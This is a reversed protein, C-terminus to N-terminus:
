WFRVLTLIPGVSRPLISLDAIRLQTTGHVNLRADVCGGKEKPSMRVTGLSHPTADIFQHVFAEVAKNDELTSVLDNLEKPLSGDLRVCAAASDQSFKLHLLEFEGRYSPMRRAIERTTNYIWNHVEVDAQVEIVGSRFDPPTYSDTSTIHVHRRSMPHCCGDSWAIASSSRRLDRYREFRFISHLEHRAFFPIYSMGHDQYEAGVGPLDVVIDIGLKALRTADGVGSRQLILPTPIAGSSVVVLKRSAIKRPTQDANPDQKKNAIVEVGAAKTGEFLVRTVLTKKMVRLSKNESRTHIFQHAADQSGTSTNQWASTTTAHFYFRPLTINQTRVGSGPGKQFDMLDDTTPIGRIACVDLYEQAVQAFYGAYSIHFPQVYGHHKLGPAIHYTENKQHLPILKQSSWGTTNWDDFDRSSLYRANLSILGMSINFRVSTMVFPMGGISGTERGNTAESKTGRWFLATKSEPSLHTPFLAATCISPDKFNDPGREIILIELDPNSAALRGAAVCAVSSSKYNILQHLHRTRVVRVV